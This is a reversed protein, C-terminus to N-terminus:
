IAAAGYIAHKIQGTAAWYQDGYSWQRWNVPNNAFGVKRLTQSLLKRHAKEAKTGKEVIDLSIGNLNVLDVDVIGGTNYGVREQDAPQYAKSISLFTGKPLARQAKQLMRFVSKRAMTRHNRRRSHNSKLDPNAFLGGLRVLEEGCDVIVTSTVLINDRLLVLDRQFIFNAVAFVTYILGVTLILLPSMALAILPILILFYGLVIPLIVLSVFIETFM